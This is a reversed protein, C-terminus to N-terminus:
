RSLVMKKTEVFSGANLRYAYVGSALRQANWGVEHKGPGVEGNVLTAVEQGLVNFIRLTVHSRVPLDYSITTSPNFPNPCNQYLRFRTPLSSSIDEVGVVSEYVRFVAADSTAVYLTDSFPDKVIDTIRSSPLTNNYLSWTQGGDGSSYIGKEGSAYLSLHHLPDRCLRSINQNRLAQTWTAGGDPSWLIGYDATFNGQYKGAAIVLTDNWALLDSVYRENNFDFISRKTNGTDATVYVANNGDAYIKAGTAEDIRMFSYSYFIRYHYIDPFWTLGADRSIRLGAIDVYLVSDSLPDFVLNFSVGGGAAGYVVQYDQTGYLRALTPEPDINCGYYAVFFLNGVHPSFWIGNYIKGM